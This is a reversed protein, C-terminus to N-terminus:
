IDEQHYAAWKDAAVVDAMTLPRVGYKAAQFKHWAKGDEPNNSKRPKPKRYNPRGTGCDQYVLTGGFFDVLRRAVAIWFPTSRPIMSREYKVGEYHFLVTHADEGDILTRGKPATFVIESCPIENCGLIKVGEVMKFTGYNGTHETIPCGALIGIIDAVDRIRVDGPLSLTIDVGM